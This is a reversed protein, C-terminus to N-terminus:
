RILKKYALLGTATAVTAGALTTVKKNKQAIEATQRIIGQAKKAGSKVNKKVVESATSDKYHSYVGTAVGVALATKAAASTSFLKESGLVFGSVGGVLAASGAIKAIRVLKERAEEQNGSEGKAEPAPIASEIYPIKEAQVEAQPLSSETVVDPEAADTIVEKEQVPWKTLSVRTNAEKPKLSQEKQRAREEFQERLTPIREGPIVNVPPLSYARTAKSLDVFPETKPPKLERLKEMLKDGVKPAVASGVVVAGVAMSRYLSPDIHYEQYPMPEGKFLYDLYYQVTHSNLVIKTGQELANWAVVAGVAKGPMTQLAKKISEELIGGLPDGQKLRKTFEFNDAYPNPQKNASNRFINRAGHLLYRTGDAINKGARTAANVVKTAISIDKLSPAPAPAEAEPVAHPTLDSISFRYIPSVTIENEDVVAAVEQRVEKPDSVAVDKLDFGEQEIWVSPSDPVETGVYEWLSEPDHPPMDRQIDKAM